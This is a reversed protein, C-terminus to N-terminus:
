YVDRGEFGAFPPLWRDLEWRNQADIVETRIQRGDVGPQLRSIVALASDAVKIDVYLGRARDWLFGKGEEGSMAIRAREQLSGSRRNVFAMLNAEGFKEELPIVVSKYQSTHSTLVWLEDSNFKALALQKLKPPSISNASARSPGVAKLGLGISRRVSGSRSTNKFRNVAQIVRVLTRIPFHGDPDVRNVPDGGCYAYANLGGKGFPSLSDPSNFRMSVPNFARYGNGLLYHGTLPDPHEGNFGPFNILAAGFGYATYARPTQQTADVQHLVSRQQDTALLVSSAQGSGSEHQALLQEESQFVVRRVPGQIETALRRKQYFRQVTDAGAPSSGAMRDLPDYQYRCLVADDTPLM